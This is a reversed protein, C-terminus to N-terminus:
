CKSNTFTLTTVLWTNEHRTLAATICQQSPTNPIPRRTQRDELPWLTWDQSDTVQGADNSRNTVQPHSAYGPKITRIYGSNTYGRIVAQAWKLAQGDAHRTMLPYDPEGRSQADTFAAWFQLYTDNIPDGTSHITLSPGPSTHPTTPETTPPHPSCGTLLLSSVLLSGWTM